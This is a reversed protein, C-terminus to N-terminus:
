IRAVIVRRTDQYLIRMPLGMRTLVSFMAPEMFAAAGTDQLWVSRFEELTPISDQPELHLGFSLEDQFTVLTVTRGLYYDLTQDYTDISYVHSAQRLFPGIQHVVLSASSVSSLANSGLLLTQVTSLSALSLITLFTLSRKRCRLALISGMAMLAAAGAIWLAFQRYDSVMDPDVDPHLGLFAAADPFGLVFATLALFGSWGLAWWVPHTPPRAAQHLGRGMLLAIAPFAPLIYAPLKSGSLSFFAVIFLAYVTLFRRPSFTKSHHSAGKLPALLSAPLLGTWPLWGTLLIPLFYWFPEVRNHVTTAFRELHEHIFFFWLFQPHEGYCLWFWPVVLVLFLPMGRLLELRKWPSTDRTWLSYVLLAGGPLALAILGKSMFAAAAAAWALLMWRTNETQALLFACISCTMWFTVGMDLTNIHGLAAYYLSSCLVLASRIGTGQGFIRDGTKWIVLVGLLGMLGVWLRAALPTPGLWRIALATAWYQLPPKEFYPIANLRPTIWQGTVAMERAIEAYRGEDPRTLNRNALGLGWLLVFLLSVILTRNM